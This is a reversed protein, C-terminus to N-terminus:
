NALKAGPHVIYVLATSIYNRATILNWGNKFCKITSVRILKLWLQIHCWMGALLLKLMTNIEDNLNTILSCPYIRDVSVM